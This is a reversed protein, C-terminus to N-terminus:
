QNPISDQQEKTPNTFLDKISVLETGSKGQISNELLQRTIVKSNIEKARPIIKYIANGDNTFISNLSAKM